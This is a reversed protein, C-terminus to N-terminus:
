FLIHCLRGRSIVSSMMVSFLDVRKVASIIGTHIYFKTGLHCDANGNGYLSTYDDALETDVMGM